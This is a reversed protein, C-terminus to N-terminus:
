APHSRPQDERIVFQHRLGREAPPPPTRYDGYVTTLLEHYGVPVPMRHGEFDVWEQREFVEAPFVQSRLPHFTALTAVYPQPHDGRLRLVRDLQSHIFRLSMAHSAARLLRKLLRGAPEVDLKQVLCGRLFRLYASQLSIGTGKPRPVYEVPFVDILPGNDETLHAIHAQQFRQEGEVLRVKLFSSWYNEVTTPHQVRYREGLREPALRLFREYDSRLMYLDLDDDWPVFGHHRIAGILTGEALFFPTDLEECVRAIDLLMGLLVQHLRRLEAEPLGLGQSPDTPEATPM